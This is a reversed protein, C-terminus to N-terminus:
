FLFYKVPKNLRLQKVEWIKLNALQKATEQCSPQKYRTSKAKEVDFHFTFVCCPFSQM